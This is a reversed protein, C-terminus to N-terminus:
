APAGVREDAPVPEVTLRDGLGVVHEPRLGYLEDLLAVQFSAPGRAALAAREAAVGLVLSAGVAATLPDAVAAFAAALGGLACGAGTIATLLPDGASVRVVTDGAVVLDVAGSVAVVGGTARALRVAAGYADDVTDRADVGRGSSALGALARVESANGRVVTPRAALLQEALQTRVSLVGVAVPDLVWPVGARRAATVAPELCARLDPGPTGLNALVAGAVGALQEAEGPVATMAPSAGAALLTNAVLNTTVENTLCQVLPTRSRLAALAQAADAAIGNRSPRRAGVEDPGAASRGAPPCSPVASTM